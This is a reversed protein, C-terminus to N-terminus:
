LDLEVWLAAHDSAAHGAEGGQAPDIEPYVEWKRPRVGPWQGMRFIGSAGARQRLAPSLLIYDIKNAATSGGHTGPRGKDDHGPLTSIDRLDTAALLATCLDDVHILSYHKPGFGSKLMVGMRAMPLMSPLFEQDGPGYVIPPRLIVSPVRDAFERVAQEGGLKSRGYLSVPAPTEEERRPRGPVSPGAAALSSCFVLRPPSPLEAM